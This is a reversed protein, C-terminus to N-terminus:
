PRQGRGASRRKGPDAIANAVDRACAVFLEALPSLTRNKVTIVGVATRLAPLTVPLIKLGVRKANFQAVSSPLLGVFRGGAVLTVTLQGSLSIIRASPPPLKNARFIELILSGPVSDYPPLVWPEDILDALTVQRRRAWKSRAGAVAQFPEDFLIDAVLDDELFPRPMRVVLLDISRERLGQFQLPATTALIAHLRIGPHRRSFEEAIAPLLGAMTIESCGIRLEGSEPAALLELRRLGQRMEDFVTVGCQLLAEGYSTLEVGRPNRDFLRVGLTHELDSVTKSIVPHSIALQSAAKAMSGSEAVALVVHLDRLRIRRGIRDAWDM